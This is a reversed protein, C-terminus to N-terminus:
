FPGCRVTIVITKLAPDAAVLYPLLGEVATSDSYWLLEDDQRGSAARIMEYDRRTGERVIGHRNRLKEALEAGGRAARADLWASSLVRSRGHLGCATHAAGEVAAVDLLQLGCARAFIACAYKNMAECAELESQTVRREAHLWVHQQANGQAGVVDPDTAAAAAAATSSVRQGEHLYPTSPKSAQSSFEVGSLQNHLSEISANRGPDPRSLPNHVSSVSPQRASEDPNRRNGTSSDRTHAPCDGNDGSSHSIQSTDPKSASTDCYTHNSPQFSGSASRATATPSHVTCHFSPNPSLPSSAFTHDPHRQLLMANALAAMTDTIGMAAPKFHSHMRGAIDKLRGGSRRARM